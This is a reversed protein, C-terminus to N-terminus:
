PRFAILLPSHRAEELADRVEGEKAGAAVERVKVEEAAAEV